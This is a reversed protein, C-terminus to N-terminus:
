EPSDPMMMRGRGSSRPYYEDLAVRAKRIDALLNRNKADSEFMSLAQSLLQASEPDIRQDFGLRQWSFVLGCCIRPYHPSDFPADRFLEFFVQFAENLQGTEKLCFGVIARAHHRQVDGLWRFALLSEALDMADDYRKLKRLAEAKLLFFRPLRGAETPLCDVMTIIADYRERSYLLKELRNIFHRGFKKYRICLEITNRTRATDGEEAYTRLMSLSLSPSHIGADLAADCLQRATDSMGANESDKIADYIFRADAEGEEVAMNAYKSAASTLGNKFCVALISRYLAANAKGRSKAIKFIKISENAHNRKGHYRILMDYMTHQDKGGEIANDLISRTEWDMGVDAYSIAMEAHAQGEALGEDLAQAFTDEAQGLRGAKAHARILLAKATVHNPDESLLKDLIHVAKDPKKGRIHEEARALLREPETPPPKNFRGNVSRGNGKKRKRRSNLSM